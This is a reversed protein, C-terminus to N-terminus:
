RSTEVQSLIRNRSADDTILVPGHPRRGTCHKLWTLLEQVRPPVRARTTSPAAYQHGVIFEALIGSGEGDKSKGTLQIFWIWEPQDTTSLQEDRLERLGFVIRKVESTTWQITSPCLKGIRVKLRETGDWEFTIHRRLRPTAQGHTRAGWLLERWGRRYTHKLPTSFVLAWNVFAYQKM